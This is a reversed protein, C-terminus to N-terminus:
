QNETEWDFRESEDSRTAKGARTQLSLWIGAISLVAGLGAISGAIAPNLGFWLTGYLVAAFGIAIMLAVALQSVVGIETIHPISKALKLDFIFMWLGAFLALLAYLQLRLSNESRQPRVDELVEMKSWEGPRIVSFDGAGEIASLRRIEGGSLEGLVTYTGPTAASFSIRHDGISFPPSANGYYITEEGIAALERRLWDEMEEQASSTISVSEHTPVSDFLQRHLELDDIQAASATMTEPEAFYTSPNHRLSGDDADDISLLESHWGQQPEPDGDVWQYVDVNRDLKLAQVEVAFSQDSLTSDTTVEGTFRVAQDSGASDLGETNLDIATQELDAFSQSLRTHPEETYWIFALSLLVMFFGFVFLPAGKRYRFFLFLPTSAIM